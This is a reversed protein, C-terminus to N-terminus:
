ATGGPGKGLFFDIVQGMNLPKQFVADVCTTPGLSDTNTGTMLAVREISPHRARWGPILDTAHPYKDGLWYDCLLLRPRYTQLAAEAEGPTAAAVVQEFYLSMFRCLASRIEDSDDVILLPGPRQAKNM